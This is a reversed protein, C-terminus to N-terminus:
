FMLYSITTGLAFNQLVGERDNKFQYTHCEYSNSPNSFFQDPDEMDSNSLKTFYNIIVEKRFTSSVQIFYDFMYDGKTVELWVGISKFYPSVSM